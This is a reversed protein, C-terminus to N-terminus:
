GLMWVSFGTQTSINLSPSFVGSVGRGVRVRLRCKMSSEKEASSLQHVAASQSRFLADMQEWWIEAHVGCLPTLPLSQVSIQVRRECRAPLLILHLSSPILPYESAIVGAPPSPPLYPANVTGTLSYSSSGSCAPPCAAGRHLFM